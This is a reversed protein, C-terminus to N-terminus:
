RIYGLTQLKRLGAKMSYTVSVGIGLLDQYDRRFFVVYAHM